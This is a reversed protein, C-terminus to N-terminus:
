MSELVHQTVPALWGLGIIMLRAPAVRALLTHQEYGRCTTRGLQPGAAPVRLWISDLVVPSNERDHWGISHIFLLVVWEPVLVRIPVRVLRALVGMIAARGVCLTTGLELGPPRLTSFTRLATVVALVMRCVLRSIVTLVCKLLWMALPSLVKVGAVWMTRTLTLGVLTLPPWRGLMGTMFLIVAM